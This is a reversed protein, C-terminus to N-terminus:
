WLVVIRWSIGGATSSRAMQPPTMIEWVIAEVGKVTLFAGTADYSGNMDQGYICTLHWRTRVSHKRVSFIKLKSNGASITNKIKHVMEEQVEQENLEPDWLRLSGDDTGILVFSDQLIFSAVGFNNGRARLTIHTEENDILQRCSYLHNTGEVDVSIYRQGDSSICLSLSLHPQNSKYRRVHSM